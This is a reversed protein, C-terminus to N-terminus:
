AVKEISDSHVGWLMDPSSDWRVLYRVLGNYTPSGHDVITGTDGLSACSYEPSIVRVRDYFKIM